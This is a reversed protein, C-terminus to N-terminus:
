IRGISDLHRFGPTREVFGSISRFEGYATLALLVALAVALGTTSLLAVLWVGAVAGIVNSGTDGLMTRERVDYAGAVLIPGVFLGLLKLPTVDWAGVSLGVGLLVFAKVARGPRLDLLNFFNTALVIVAAALLFRGDGPQTVAAYFLALGATGAAKLAGTSFSGGMVAAAHGRWGRSAGTFVDDALGLVGVGAVFALAALSVALVDDDVLRGALAIPALAVFAAALILLGFPCPLQAGRYNERVHGGDLLGQRTAPALALATVFALVLPLYQV